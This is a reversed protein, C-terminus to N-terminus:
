LEKIVEILPGCILYQDVKFETKIAALYGGVLFRLEKKLGVRKGIGTPAYYRGGIVNDSPPRQKALDSGVFASDYNIEKLSQRCSNVRNTRVKDGFRKANVLVDAM